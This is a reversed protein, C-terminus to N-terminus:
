KNKLRGQGYDRKKIKAMRGDPHHFVLGEIDMKELFLAIGEHTRLIGEYQTAKQHSILVHSDFGEPNGQVKPGCLEYTGDDPTAGADWAEMHWQDENSEVVPMWGVTKGTIKDYDEIKFGEPTPQGKKIERRKWYQCRDVKCCTGDYKRTATGEGDFVWECGISKERLIKKMNSPDRQYITPIKKM